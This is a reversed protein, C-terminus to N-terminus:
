SAKAAKACERGSRQFGAILLKRLKQASEERTSSALSKIIHELMVRYCSFDIGKGDMEEQVELIEMVLHDPDDEKATDTASATAM